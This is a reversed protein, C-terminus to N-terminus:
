QPEFKLDVRRCEDGAGLEIPKSCTVHQGKDKPFVLPPSGGISTCIQYKGPIEELTMAFSGDRVTKTCPIRGNIPRASPVFCVTMKPIVHSASDTVTGWVHYSYRDPQKQALQASAILSIAVLILATYAVKMLKRGHAQCLFRVTSNVRRRSNM